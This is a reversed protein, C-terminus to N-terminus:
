GLFKAWEEAGAQTMRPPIRIYAGHATVFWDLGVATGAVRCRAPDRNKKTLPRISHREFQRTTTTVPATEVVSPLESQPSHM